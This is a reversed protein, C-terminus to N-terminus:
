VQHMKMSVIKGTQADIELKKYTTTGQQGTMAEITSKAFSRSFSVIVIWTSGDKCNEVEELTLHPVQDAAYLESMAEMAIRVAEKADIM